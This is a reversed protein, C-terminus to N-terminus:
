RGAEARQNRSAVSVLPRPKPGLEYDGAAQRALMQQYTEVGPCEHDNSRDLVAQTPGLGSTTWGCHHCYVTAPSGCGFTFYRRKPEIARDTQDSTTV